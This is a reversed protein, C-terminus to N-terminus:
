REARAACTVCVVADPQAELREESIAGGCRRCQGYTGTTVAELAKEVRSLQQKQRQKLALAMQQGQISDLRSLRGIARDPEVPATDGDTRDLSSRLVAALAELRSQFRKVTVDDM